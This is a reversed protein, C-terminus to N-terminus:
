PNLTALLTQAEEIEPFEQTPSFGQLAPALVAHGDSARNARQYHKALSLAASLEFGRAKQHQAITIASLFAEEVPAVSERDRKLLIEGRIRHMEADFWREGAREAQVLAHDLRALAADIEGGDAELAALSSFFQPDLFLIGQDRLAEMGQRMEAIGGEREGLM